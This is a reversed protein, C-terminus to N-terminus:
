SASHVSRAYTELVLARVLPSDWDGAALRKRVPPLTAQALTLEIWKQQEDIPLAAFEARLAKSRDGSWSQASSAPDRPPLVEMDSALTTRAATRSQLAADTTETKTNTSTAAAAANSLMTRLYATNHQIGHAPTALRAELTGLALEVAVGGHERLLSELDNDRIGIRAARLPLTVDEPPPADGRTIVRAKKAVRFQVEGVAAGRRHEVLEVTLETVASIEEIAPLVLESKVKRWERPKLGGGERLVRSWFDPEHRSTLGGPVDKYRACIEYLAVATYTSLAAISQLDLQAWRSPNVLHEQITPPYFWTVWSQGSRTFFRAESLLNFSRLEDDEAKLAEAVALGDLELQQQERGSLPRWLVSTDQMQQIYRLIRDTGASIGRDRVLGTIPMTYGGDPGPRMRQAHWLMINYVKRGTASLAINRPEIALAFVGKHLLPTSLERVPGDNM